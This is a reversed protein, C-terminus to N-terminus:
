RFVFITETRSVRGAPIIPSPWDPHNVANPYFQTELCVADHPGYTKGDKGELLPPAANLTFLQLGPMDTWVEMTIGSELGQLVAAQHLGQGNLCYNHDFGGFQVLQPDHGKLAEELLHPTRFDFDTDAVPRREGTPVGDAAAPLFADANIQLLQREAAGSGQGNLDFYAHSTVNWPTDETPVAQYQVRIRDNEVIYDMSFSLLGPFGGQGCDLMALHLRIAEHERAVDFSFNKGAYCGSGGHICHRSMNAELQVQRNKHVYTANAIRNACRGIVCSNCLGSGQYAGLSQKGLVVDVPVAGDEKPVLLKHITAGLTLVELTLGSPAALSIRQVETGDPLQGFSNITYTGFTQM